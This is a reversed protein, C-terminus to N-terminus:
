TACCAADLAGLHRGFRRRKNTGGMAQFFELLIRWRIGVWPISATDGSWGSGHSVARVALRM